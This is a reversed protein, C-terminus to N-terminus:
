REARWSMSALMKLAAGDVRLRRGGDLLLEVGKGDVTDAPRWSKIARGCLYDAQPELVERGAPTLNGGHPGEHGPRRDCRNGLSSYEVACAPTM